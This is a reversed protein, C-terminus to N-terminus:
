DSKQLYWVPGTFLFTAKERGRFFPEVGKALWAKVDGINEVGGEIAAIVNSQSTLYNVLGTVSFEIDNEYQERGAVRFGRKEVVEDTFEVRARQPSPYRAHYTERIWTQFEALGDKWGAFYNDYVVLWARARLVRRAEQLFVDRDLWHFVCSLTALDFTEEAFPLKEASAVVYRVREVRPARAIMEPAADLGVVERAIETLAVTSLGTGCGVDLARAIPGALALFKRIREVVVPHFYPRGQAYREAATSTEFFNM